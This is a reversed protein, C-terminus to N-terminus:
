TYIITHISVTTGRFRGRVSYSKSGIEGRTVDWGGEKLLFLVVVAVVVDVDLHKWPETDRGPLTECISYFNLLM